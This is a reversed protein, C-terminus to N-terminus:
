HFIKSHLYLASAADFQTVALSFCSRSRSLTPATTPIHGVPPLSEHVSRCTNKRFTSVLSRIQAGDGADGIDIWAENTDMEAALSTKPLRTHASDHRLGCWHDRFDPLDYRICRSRHSHPQADQNATIDAEAKCMRFNALENRLMRGFAGFPRCEKGLPQDPWGVLGAQRKDLGADVSPDYTHTMGCREKRQKIVSYVLWASCRHQQMLETQINRWFADLFQQCGTKDLGKEM